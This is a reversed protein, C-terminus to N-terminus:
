RVVCLKTVFLDQQCNDADDDDEATTPTARMATRRAKAQTKAIRADVDDKETHTAHDCTGTKTM